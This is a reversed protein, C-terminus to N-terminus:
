PSALLGVICATFADIEPIPAIGDPPLGAREIASASEPGMAVVLPRVGHEGWLSLWPAAVAAAGSSPIALLDPAGDPEEGARLETVEAGLARLRAAIRSTREVSRPLLIRRGALPGSRPLLSAAGRALLARALSCGLEEAAASDAAPARLEAAIAPAGDTSSVRGRLLLGGGEYAGHIGVPATCGAGLERLAAREAIVARETPEDNLAARLAGALPADLLTEVALAGQGAAPLLQEIPFPVTHTARLALRRLGAAALVIADYEGERLKRLRTDVNGRIEVYALDSRLSYLQARRRPSSTGVRAGAPLEAFTAYRESCYVDRPDERLSIASLQMGAPLASPLDKASHVAYDARGDALARELEKVFIAQEGMAALASSRDRDGVTSLALMTTAIGNQALRAAVHRSQWLALASGRTACIASSTSPAAGDALVTAATAEVADEIRNRDMAALEDLPLESLARMVVARQSPSLTERVYSRAIALTRAAADYRADFHLAIERAIRKSFAPTSAGSDISFTLEGVRVVAPMTADGRAPETSDITLIGRARAARMAGENVVPSDTAAVCLFADALDEERYARRECRVDPHAALLAEMAEGVSPAVVSLKAGAEVFTRAKRAAVSGAGLLVVLRGALRLSLPLSM